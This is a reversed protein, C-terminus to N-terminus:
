AQEHLLKEIVALRVSLTLVESALLLDGKEPYTPALRLNRDRADRGYPFTAGVTTLTVGTERCLEYVRKACGDRVDLSVFYGGRPHTWTACGTGALDRTLVNELIAFKERLVAAQRHMQRAVAEMDPLARLHRLQNLKDYGITKISMTRLLRSFNRPGTAVMAVGAGPLTIKSTSSFYCFREETGCERAYAFVDALVDGEGDALDHVAYANDWMVTFDPAATKMSAFRYVVDDSYTVGTPNAYKPVCWIGKVSPDQAWREVEDMDPGDRRMGIPILEFGLEETIAFHRDYGPAPCLFKRDAEMCWPRPSDAMGYLMGRAITEYMLSLSSNGGIFIQESPIGTLSSWFERMEPLGAPFGYNRADMGGPLMCDKRSLPETLLSMSLDLQEGSPKGRSLDLKHGAEAFARRRAELLDYERSLAARSMEMYQMPEHKEQMKSHDLPRFNCGRM